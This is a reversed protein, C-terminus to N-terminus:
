GGHASRYAFFRDRAVHQLRAPRRGVAAPLQGAGTIRGAVTLVDFAEM